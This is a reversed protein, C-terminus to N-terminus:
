LHRGETRGTRKRMKNSGNNIERIIGPFEIIEGFILSNAQFSPHIKTSSLDQNKQLFLSYDRGIRFSLLRFFM